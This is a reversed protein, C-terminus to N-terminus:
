PLAQFTFPLPEAVNEKLFVKANLTVGADDSTVSVTEELVEGDGLLTEALKTHYADYCLKVATEYDRSSERQVQELHVCKHRYVPLLLGFLSVQKTEEACVESEFASASAPILSLARGLVVTEERVRQRGSLVIQTEAFSVTESFERFTRVYVKGSSEVIRYGGERLTMAGSVLLDGESVTDGISVVPEGRSVEMGLVIGGRKAILHASVGAPATQEPLAREQLEVTLRTGRLNFAAFVFQPFRRLFETQAAPEDLERIPMGPYVGISRMCGLIEEESLDSSDMDITVSWVYFTSGWLLFVAFFIGLFMGIRDTKRLFLFPLGKERCIVGNKETESLLGHILARDSKRTKLFLTGDGPDTLHWFRVGARYLRDPITQACKRPFTWALYGGLFHILAYIM